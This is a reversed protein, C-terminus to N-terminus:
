IAFSSPTSTAILESAWEGCSRSQRAHPIPCARRPHSAASSTSLLRPSRWSRGRSLRVIHFAGCWPCYAARGIPINDINKAMIRSLFAVADPGSVEYKLLPSIDIIGAAHRLSYYEGENPLNYSSVACYGAWDAWKYSTCLAATRDHFPTPIPM